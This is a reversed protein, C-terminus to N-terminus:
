IGTVWVVVGLALLTATGALALLRGSMVDRRLVAYVLLVLLDKGIVAIAAHTVNQTAVLGIPLACVLGVVTSAIAPGSRKEVVGYVQLSASIVAPVTAVAFYPAAHLTAAYASGLFPALVIDVALLVLAAMAIAGGVSILGVTWLMQRRVSDDSARATLALVYSSTANGLADGGSRGITAATSYLGLTAPGALTGIFVRELQNQAWTVISIAMMSVTERQPQRSQKDRVINLTSAERRTLMLYFIETVALHLAMALSSHLFIATPVSAVLAGAASLAQWRALARWYEHLQLVAAPVIHASTILPILAFPSLGFVIDRHGPYALFLVSLTGSIFAVGFLGSWRSRTRIYELDDENQLCLVAQSRIAIEAVAHYLTYVLAVWAYIGVAEPSTFKAFLLLILAQALRGLGREITAWMLHLATRM